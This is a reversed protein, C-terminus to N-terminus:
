NNGRILDAAKEGIMVTVANTNSGVLSPMASADCIRIGDLGRVRLSADLVAMEDEGMRCTSTPHYGTRGFRRVYTEFDAKTRVTEDPSRIVSVLKQMAPQAIIERSIRVGEASIRLDEPEALFNPDVIPKAAPDASQLTVSGRSKPRLAYSNLTVGSAGNLVTPVGAESGAGCLFHFQLDPCPASGPGGAYWFAGGEVVNSAVPGGRFLLYQLGALAAWHAKKYKNLSEHGKLEAVINVALHDTLNQGVGPLDHV